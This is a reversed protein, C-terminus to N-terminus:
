TRRTLHHLDVLPSTSLETTEVDWDAAAGAVFDPAAHRRPDTLLVERALRRLNYLLLPVNRKEYLVDSALVLDYPAGALLPGPRTWGAVVLEVDVGNRRANRRALDIADPSWDSALARAGALAAALSPLALGCGLELVRVGDLELGAVHRALAIGSPWLEAWYPLFEEREFAEEDLLAEPDSPRLIVLERCGIV